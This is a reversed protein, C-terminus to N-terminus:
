KKKFILFAVVAVGALIMMNKTSMGGVTFDGSQFSVANDSRGSAGSTASQQFSPPSNFLQMPDGSM